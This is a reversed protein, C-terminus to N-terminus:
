HLAMSPWIEWQLFFLATFERKKLSSQFSGTGVGLSVDNLKLQVNLASLDSTEREDDSAHRWLGLVTWTPSLHVGLFSTMVTESEGVTNLLFGSTPEVFDGAPRGKMTWRERRGKVRAFVRGAGLSLEAEAYSRYFRGRCLRSFCDYATYDLDNQIAEGGARVGLFSFPFVELAGDLSNYAGASSAIVRPRLYGYLVSNLDGWLRLNLGSEIEGVGSLPYSRFSAGLKLDVLGNQQAAEAGRSFLIAWNLLLLLVAVITPRGWRFADGSDSPKFNQCPKSLLNDSRLQVGKKVTGQKSQM